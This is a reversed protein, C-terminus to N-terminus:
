KKWDLVTLKKEVVDFIRDETIRLCVYVYVYM